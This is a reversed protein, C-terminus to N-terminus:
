HHGVPWQSADESTSHEAYTYHENEGSGPMNFFGMIFLSLLFVICSIPIALLIYLRRSRIVM